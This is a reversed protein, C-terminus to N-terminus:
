EFADAFITDNFFVCWEHLTGSDDAASDTVTLEWQGGLNDDNFASLLGTPKVASDRRYAPRSSGCSSEADAAASDTFLVDLLKGSCGVGSSPFGPRDLLQVTKASDVHKLSIGLDGIWTHGLDVSVNVSSITAGSPL